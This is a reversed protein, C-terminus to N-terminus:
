KEKDSDKHNNKGTSKFVKLIGKLHKELEEKTMKPM